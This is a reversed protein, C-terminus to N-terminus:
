EPELYMIDSRLVYKQGSTLPAGQHLLEHRFCLAMGSKPAVSHAEFDTHGGGFGDNLYVIFTLGSRERENRRYYGDRHWKFVQGVEYRYMRFRENIGSALWGPAYGGCQQALAPWLQQALSMDDFIVRDNNRVNHDTLPGGAADITAGEFGLAEGRAILEECAKDSLFNEVVFWDKPM